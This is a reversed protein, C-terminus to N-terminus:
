RPSSKAPPPETAVASALSAEELRARAERLFDWERRSAGATTVGAGADMVSKGSKALTPSETKTVPVPNAGRLARVAVYSPPAILRLAPEVSANPAKEPVIVTGALTM